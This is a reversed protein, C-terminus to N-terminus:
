PKNQSSSPQGTMGSIIAVNIGRCNPIFGNGHIEHGNPLDMAYLMEQLSDRAERFRENSSM